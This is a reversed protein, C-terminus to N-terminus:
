GYHYGKYAGTATLAARLTNRTVGLCKCMFDISPQQPGYWWDLLEEVLDRSFKPKLGRGPRHPLPKTM